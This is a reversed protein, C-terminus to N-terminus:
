QQPQIRLMIQKYSLDGVRVNVNLLKRCMYIQSTHVVNGDLAWPQSKPEIPTVVCDYDKFLTLIWSYIVWVVRLM